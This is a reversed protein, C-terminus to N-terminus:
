KLEEKWSNIVFERPITVRGVCDHRSVFENIERILEQCSAEEWMQWDTDLECTDDHMIYYRGKKGRVLKLRAHYNGGNNHKIQHPECDCKEKLMVGGHRHLLGFANKGLETQLEEEKRESESIKEKFRM